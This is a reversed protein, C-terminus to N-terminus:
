SLQEQNRFEVVENFMRTLARRAPVYVHDHTLMVAGIPAAIPLIAAVVVGVGFGAVLQLGLPANKDIVNESIKVALYCGCLTKALEIIM